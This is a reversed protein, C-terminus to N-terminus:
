APRLPWIGNAAAADLMSQVAWSRGRCLPCVITASGQIQFWRSGHCMPCIMGDDPCPPILAILGTIGTTGAGAAVAAVGEDDTAERLAEGDWTRGDILVRGSATIYVMPGMGPDLLFADHDREVEDQLGDM